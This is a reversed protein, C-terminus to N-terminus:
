AFEMAARLKNGDVILGDAARHVLRMEVARSELPADDTRSL